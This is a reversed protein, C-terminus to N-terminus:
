NILNKKDKKLLKQANIGMQFICLLKETETMDVRNEIDMILTAIDLAYTHDDIKCSNKYFINKTIDKLEEIRDKSIGLIDGTDVDKDVDKDIDKIKKEMKKDM